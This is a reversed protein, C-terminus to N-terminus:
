EKLNINELALRLSHRLQRRQLGLPSRESLGGQMMDLPHREMSRLRIHIRADILTM